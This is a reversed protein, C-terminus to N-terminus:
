ATTVPTVVLDCLKLLKQDVFMLLRGVTMRRPSPVIEENAPFPATAIQPPEILALHRRHQGRTPAPVMCNDVATDAELSRWWVQGGQRAGLRRAAQGQSWDAFCLDM